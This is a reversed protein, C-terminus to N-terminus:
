LYLPRSVPRVSEHGTATSVLSRSWALDTVAGTTMIVLIEWNCVFKSCTEPPHTTCKSLKQRLNLHQRLEQGINQVKHYLTFFRSFNIVKRPMVPYNSFIM